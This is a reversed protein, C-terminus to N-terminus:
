IQFGVKGRHGVLFLMGEKGRERGRGRQIHILRKGVDDM